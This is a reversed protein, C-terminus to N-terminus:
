HNSPQDSSTSSRIFVRQHHLIRRHCSGFFDKIFVNQTTLPYKKITELVNSYHHHIQLSATAKISMLVIELIKNEETIRDFKSASSSLMFSSFLSVHRLCFVDFCSFICLSDNIVRFSIRSTNKIKKKINLM